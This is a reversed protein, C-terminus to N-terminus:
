SASLARSLIPQPITVFYNSTSAGIERPWIIRRQPRGCRMGMPVAFYEAIGDTASLYKWGLRIPVSDRITIERYPPRAGVEIGANIICQRFRDGRGKMVQYLGRLVFWAAGLYSGRRPRAVLANHSRGCSIGHRYLGTLTCASRTMPMFVSHKAWMSVKRILM